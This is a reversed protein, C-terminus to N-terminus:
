KYSGSNYACRGTIFFVLETIAGWGAGVSHLGGRAQVLVFEIKKLVNQTFKYLLKILVAIYSTKFRKMTRSYAM